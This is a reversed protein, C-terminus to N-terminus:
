DVFYSDNFDPDQAFESWVIRMEGVEMPENAIRALAANVRLCMEDEIYFRHQDLWNIVEHYNDSTARELETVADVIVSQYIRSRPVPIVDLTQDDSAVVALRHTSDGGVYRLGSNYRSGRSPTCGRRVPGDLIVGIAYCFGRPDVIVAGDISSVQSFLDSDLKIPDIKTGQSQLRDAECAADQAVILMSGHSQEAAANILEIFLAADEECASPFLRYYTDLLLAQPFREQPLSPIGYKSIMLVIDGCSIRWHCHGLFEVEFVNQDEWPNVGTAINGIGFIYEDDAVLASGSSVMQLVKRSWRSDRFPVPTSFRLSMDVANGDSKALLLRGTGKTGEYMLSSIQNFTEFLNSMSYRNAGITTAPVFMFARATRRVVEEPSRMRRSFRGPEYRVLEDHAESLIGHVASHILSAHWTQSDDDPSPVHLTPFSEFLEKPLQLVPVIYHDKVQEPSGSFSVVGVASDYPELAKQVARRVSDRRINEPKDRMSPEDGYFMNKMPHNAIESSIAEQLDAFISINWKGDEPEICVDNQNSHGPAITGVLLCEVKPSPVGLEELVQNALSEVEYRFSHQYAWMFLKITKINMHKSGRHLQLHDLTSKSVTRGSRLECELLPGVGDPCGSILM